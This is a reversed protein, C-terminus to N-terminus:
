ARAHTALELENELAAYFGETKRAFREVRGRLHQYAVLTPIAIALGAATTVLAQYVGSALMEPRGLANQTAVVAFAEILGWVTGLLGLLPAIIYVMHLPKLKASLERVEATAVDEVARERAEGNAHPRLAVDLIRSLPTARGEILTRAAPAGGARLASHVDRALREGGLRAERLALWREFALALAVLSCLGLPWMLPGGSKVLEWLSPLAQPTAQAMFGIM